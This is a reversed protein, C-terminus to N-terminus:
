LDYDFTKLIETIRKLPAKGRELIGRSEYPCLCSISTKIFFSSIPDENELKERLIDMIKKRHEETCFFDRSELNDILTTSTRSDVSLNIIQSGRSKLYHYSKTAGDCTVIFKVRKPFFRPLWFKISSEQGTDRELYNELGEILIIIKGDYIM